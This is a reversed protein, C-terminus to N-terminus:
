NNLNDPSVFNVPPFQIDYSSQAVFVNHGDFGIRLPHWFIILLAALLITPLPM